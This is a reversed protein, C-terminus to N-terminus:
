IGLWDRLAFVQDDRYFCDKTTGTAEDYLVPAVHRLANIMAQGKRQGYWRHFENFYYWFRRVEDENM